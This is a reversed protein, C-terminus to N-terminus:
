VCLLLVCLRVCLVRLCVFVCVFLVCVRKKVGRACVFVCVVPFVPGCVFLWLCFSCVSFSYVCLMVCVVCRM